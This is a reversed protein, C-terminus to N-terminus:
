REHLEATTETRDFRMPYPDIGLARLAERKTRRESILADVTSQSEIEEM